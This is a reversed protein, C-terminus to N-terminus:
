RMEQGRRVLPSKSRRRRSSPKKIEQGITTIGCLSAAALSGYACDLWDKDPRSPPSKWENLKRGRGETAIPQQATFHDAIMRHDSPDAKWLTLCGPDGIATVLGQHLMTKYTNSDVLVYRQSTEKDRRVRCSFGKVESYEKKVPWQDMPEGGAGIGWGKEPFCVGTHPTDRCAQHVISRWQGEDVHLRDLKYSSGNQDAYGATVIQDILALLGAYRAGDPGAGAHHDELTRRIDSKTFYSRGQDPYVGYDIVAGTFAEQLALVVYFLCNGQVDIKATIYQTGFPVQLRELTSQKEQIERPGLFSVSEVRSVPQNQYEAWFAKPSRCFLHM